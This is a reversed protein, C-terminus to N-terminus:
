DGKSFTDKVSEYFNKISESFKERETRLVQSTTEAMIEKKYKGDLNTIRENMMYAANSDPLESLNISVLGYKADVDIKNTLDNIINIRTSDPLKDTIKDITEELKVYHGTLDKNEINEVFNDAIESADSTFVDVVKAKAVNYSDAIRSTVDYYDAVFLLAGAGITVGIPKLLNLGNKGNKGM